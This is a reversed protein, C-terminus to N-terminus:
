KRVLYIIGVTLGSYFAVTGTLIGASGWNNRRRYKIMEKKIPSRSDHDKLLHYHKRDLSFYYHGREREDQITELFQFYIEPQQEILSKLVQNMYSRKLGNSDPISYNFNQFSKLDTHGVTELYADTKVKINSHALYLSDYKLKILADIQRRQDEVREKNNSWRLMDYYYGRNMVYVSYLPCNPFSKHLEVLMEHEKNKVYNHLLDYYVSNTSIPKVKTAFGEQITSSGKFEYEGNKNMNSPYVTYVYTYVIGDRVEYITSKSKYFQSTDTQGFSFSFFLLFLSTLTVKMHRNRLNM